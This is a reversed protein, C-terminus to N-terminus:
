QPTEIAGFFVRLGIYFVMTSVDFSFLIPTCENTQLVKPTSPCTPAGPYPSPHTVLM